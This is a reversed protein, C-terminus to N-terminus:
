KGAAEILEAIRGHQAGFRHGTPLADLELGPLTLHPCAAIPDRVGYICVLKPWTASALIPALPQTHPGKIDLWSNPRVVMEVYDRPAIMVLASVKAKAEDPLAQGILPAASAGFSYGSLVVRPKRWLAGFHEILEALEAAAQAPTRSKWFYHLSDFGVVPIGAAALDAALDQTGGSWGADGSYLVVFTDGGGPAQAATPTVVLSLRREISGPPAGPTPRGLTACASLAAACLCLLILRLPTM